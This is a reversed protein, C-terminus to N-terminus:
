FKFLDHIVSMIFEVNEFNLNQKLNGSNCFFEKLDKIQDAKKDM